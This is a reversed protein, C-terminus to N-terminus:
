RYFLICLGVIIIVPVMIYKNNLSISYNNLLMQLIHALSYGTFNMLLDGFQNILGGSTWYLMDNTIYGYSAEFMEWVLGISMATKFQNSCVLGLVFFFIIHVISWGTINFNKYNFFTKSLVNLNRGLIIVSIAVLIILMGMMRTDGRTCTLKSLM